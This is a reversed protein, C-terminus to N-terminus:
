PLPGSEDQEEPPLPRTLIFIAVAVLVVAQIGLVSWPVALALSLLLVLLMAFVALQKAGRSIAGYRRWAEIPPGFRPHSVLWDHLRQSGRAFCFAALLVLPTTPLLPLFIGLIGLALSLLGFTVWLIRAIPNHRLQTTTGDDM